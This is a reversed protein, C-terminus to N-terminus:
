ETKHIGGQTVSQDMERQQGQMAKGGSAGRMPPPSSMFGGTMPGGPGMQLAQAQAILLDQHYQAHKEALAQIIPPWAQFSESKAKARMERAHISHDDIAPRVKPVKLDPFRQTFFNVLDPYQMQEAAMMDDPTPGEPNMPGAPQMRPDKALAEFQENEMIANKTDARMTPLLNTRGYVELFKYQTEPERPNIVGLMALQEMEAKDLLTSRPLSSAAEPIVDIQGQLDAGMFKEV